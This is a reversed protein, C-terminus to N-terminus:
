SAGGSIAPHISDDDQDQQRRKKESEFSVVTGSFSKGGYKVDAGGVVGEDARGVRHTDGTASSGRTPGASKGSGFSHRHFTTPEMNWVIRYLSTARDGKSNFRKQIAIYGFDSLLGISEHVTQRTIGLVKGIHVMSATCINNRSSGCLVMLVSLDRTRLRRDSCALAPVSIIRRSM